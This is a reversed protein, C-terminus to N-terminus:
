VGIIKKKPPPLPPLPEGTEEINESVDGILFYWLAFM